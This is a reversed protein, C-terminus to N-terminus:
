KFKDVKPLLQGQFSGYTNVWEDKIKTKKKKLATESDVKSLAMPPVSSKSLNRHLEMSNTLNDTILMDNKLPTISQVAPKIKFGQKTDTFIDKDLELHSDTSSLLSRNFNNATQM